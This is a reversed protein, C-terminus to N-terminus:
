DVFDKILITKIIIIIQQKSNLADETRWGDMRTRLFKALLCSTM